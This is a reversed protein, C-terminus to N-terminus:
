PPPPATQSPYRPPGTAGPFCKFRLIARFREPPRSQRSPEAPREVPSWGLLLHHDRVVDWQHGARARGKPRRRRFVRFQLGYHIHGKPYDQLRYPRRPASFRGAQRWFGHRDDRVLRTPLMFSRHTTLTSPTRTISATSCLSLRRLRRLRREGGSCSSCAQSQDRTARRRL